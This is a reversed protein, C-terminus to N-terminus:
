LQDIVGGVLLDSGNWIPNGFHRFSPLMCFLLPVGLIARDCLLLLLRSLVGVM